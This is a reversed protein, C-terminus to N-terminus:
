KKAEKEMKALHFNEPQASQYVITYGLERLLRVVIDKVSATPFGIKFIRNSREFVPTLSTIIENNRELENVRDELHGLRENHWNLRRKWCM